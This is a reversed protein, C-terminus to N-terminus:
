KTSGIQVPSAAASSAIGPLGATPATPGSPGANQNSAPGAQFNIYNQGATPAVGSLQETMQQAALQDPSFGAVGQSAPLLQGGPFFDQSAQGFIGKAFPLAWAPLKTTQTETSNGSGGGSGM